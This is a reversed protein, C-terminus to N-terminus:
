NILQKPASCWQAGAAETRKRIWDEHAIIREYVSPGWEFLQCNDKTFSTIGVQYIHAGDVTSMPGGSDGYCTTKRDGACMMYEPNLYGYTQTCKADSVITLGTELLCNSERLIFGFNTVGWGAVFLNDVNRSNFLCVPRFTDTFVLPTELEILGIDRGLGPKRYLEHAWFNKVPLPEGNATAKKNCSTTLYVKVDSMEKSTELCHAATIIFRDNIISGTCGGEEGNKANRVKLYVVWPYKNNLVKTGYIIRKSGNPIGCECDLSSSFPIVCLCLLGFLVISSIMKSLLLFM